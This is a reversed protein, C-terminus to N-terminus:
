VLCKSNLGINYDIVLNEDLMGAFATVAEIFSEM